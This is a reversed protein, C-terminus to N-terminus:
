NTLSLELTDGVNAPVSIPDLAGDVVAYDTNGAIGASVNAIRVSRANGLEGAAFAVYVMSVSHNANVGSAVSISPDSIHNQFLNTAATDPQETLPPIAPDEQCAALLLVVGAFCLRRAAVMM